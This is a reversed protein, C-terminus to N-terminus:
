SHNSEASSLLISHSQEGCNLILDLISLHSVFAGYQQSYAPHVYDQWVVEIGQRTFLTLDLYDRAAAGSLYRTAGFHLCHKLLRETQGGGIGLESSRVLERKVGLWRLLLATVALDLDILRVWRQQLLDELEPLYHALHPARAYFQRISGLHKRAWKQTNDIEVLHIPPFNKGSHLVPVTLWHPGTPSKIRNRNRWGHKDFQVDDYIVFVDSRLLQDFFGLWPLYSPQLIAVTKASTAPSM